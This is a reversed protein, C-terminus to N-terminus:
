AAKLHAVGGRMELRLRLSIAVTRAFGIPDSTSFLGVVKLSGISPDDIVVRVDGYRAFEQLSDDLTVDEFSLQGRQWALRREVEAPDIREATLKAAEGPGAAGSPLALTNAPLTVAKSPSFPQVVRVQGNQVMVQVQDASLVRVAFAASDTIIHTGLADLTFLRVPDAAAEVLVEGRVLKVERSRETYTVALTTGTNLTVASGDPLPERRMEGIRTSYEEQVSRRGFLAVGSLGAVLGGATAWLLARRRTLRPVRPAADSHPRTSSPARLRDFQLYIARARAYAGLHRVDQALWQRLLRQEAPTPTRGDLRVVWQAAQVDIDSEEPEGSM